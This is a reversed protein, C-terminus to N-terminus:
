FLRFRANRGAREIAECLQRHRIAAIREANWEKFEDPSLTARMKDIHQMEAKAAAIEAAIVGFGLDFGFM